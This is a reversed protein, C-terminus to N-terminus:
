TIKHCWDIDGSPIFHVVKTCFTLCVQGIGQFYKYLFSNQYNYQQSYKYQVSTISYWPTACMVFAVHWVAGTHFTQCTESHVNELPTDRPMGRAVHWRPTAGIIVLSRTLVEGQSTLLFVTLPLRTGFTLVMVATEAFAVNSVLNWRYNADTIM